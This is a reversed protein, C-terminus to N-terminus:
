GNARSRRHRDKTPRGASANNKKLNRDPEYVCYRGRGAAKAQYMASDAHVLLERSTAGHDPFLAIGISATTRVAHGKVKISHGAIASVLQGAVVQARDLDVHRLLIAFEDGGLRSILDSDRLRRRVSRALSALLKDGAGHGLKDNVRKFDDMDVFLVAGQFGYRRAEALEHDFEEQFRRRSVLETLPDHDAMHRLQAELQRRESVVASLSVTTVAIVCLFAQLLILSENYSEAVFPGFGHLTGAIAIAALLFNATVAERQGFRFATWILFPLALFTLPQDSIGPPLFGGFVVLGMLSVILLLVLAKLTERQTWEVRSDLSWLVVLPAVILVSSVDGLWWTFWIAGFEGWDAYGSIALSTVGITASVATSLGGALVAAKFIDHPKDFVKRGNAFRNVLYAGLLAELSNGTAIGTSTAVSGATTVNVLFAGLFIAPWFRYGLLLLAALAIGTPPWVPSASPNVFAMMLGLKGALFYAVTLAVIIASYRLARAPNPGKMVKRLVPAIFRMM